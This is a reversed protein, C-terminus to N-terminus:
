NLTKNDKRKNIISNKTEAHFYHNMMERETKFYEDKNLMLQYDGNSYKLPRAWLENKTPVLIYWPLEKKYVDWKAFLDNFSDNPNERIIKKMNKPIFTKYNYKAYLLIVGYIFAASMFGWPNEIIYDLLIRGWEGLNFRAMREIM